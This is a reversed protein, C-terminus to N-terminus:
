RAAERRYLRMDCVTLWPAINAFITTADDRPLDHLGSTHDGIKM